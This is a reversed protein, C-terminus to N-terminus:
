FSVAVAIVTVVGWVVETWGITKAAPVPQNLGWVARAFLLAFVGIILPQSSLAVAGVAVAHSTISAWGSSARGHKRQILTRVHLIAPIARAVLIGSIAIAPLLRFGGAIAIAAASSTMAIAAGLEPLLVRSRNRADFAIQTMGLPAVIAIPVLVIWGSVIVALALAAFGATAYGAALLWCWRTRPYAKRRLLDQLALKLPQRTLFGFCFALALLIGGWSPAIALGVVIPEFLFGWGGHETPLALPRLAPRSALPPQESYSTGTATRM